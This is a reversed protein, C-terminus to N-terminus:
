LRRRCTTRLVVSPSAVALGSVWCDPRLILARARLEGAVPRDMESVGRETPSPAKNPAEGLAASDAPARRVPLSGGLM